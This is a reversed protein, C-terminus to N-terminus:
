DLCSSRLAAVASPLRRGSSRVRGTCGPPLTVKADREEIQAAAKALEGERAELQRKADSLEADRAALRAEAEGLQQELASRAAEAQSLAEQPRM